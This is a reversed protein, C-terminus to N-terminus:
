SDDGLRFRFSSPLQQGFPTGFPIQIQRKFHGIRGSLLDFGALRGKGFAFFAKQQYSLLHKLFCLSFGLGSDAALEDELFNGLFFPGNYFLPLFYHFGFLSAVSYKINYLNTQIEIRKGKYYIITYIAIHLIADYSYQPSLALILLLDKQTILADL